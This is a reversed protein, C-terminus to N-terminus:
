KFYSMDANFLDNLKDKDSLIIKDEPIKWNINLFPDNFRVAREYDPAYINDTKYLVVAYESIVSFGHAFGSPILLQKKNFESLEISFHKGFTKKSRRLDLAVDIIKGKIVRVLKAQDYPSIQFHLGRITGYISESQNDQIFNYFLNNKEFLKKNYSEFFCGRSDEFVEPELVKLDDIGTDTVIM